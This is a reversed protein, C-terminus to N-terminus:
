FAMYDNQDSDKMLPMLTIMKGGIQCKLSGVSVKSVLTLVMCLKHCQYHVEGLNLECDRERSISRSLLNDGAFVQAGQDKTLWIATTMAMTVLCRMGVIRRAEISVLAFSVSLWSFVLLCIRSVQFPISHV